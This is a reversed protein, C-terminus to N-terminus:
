VDVVVRALYGNKDKEVEFKHMTIAKPDVKLSQTKYDIKDGFFSAKLKFKGKVEKIDTKCSNFVLFKSDKLFLIEDLFSYMLEELSDKELFIEKKIKIKVKKPNAMIDFVAMAASEFLENLTKGRAEFAVDATTLGEIFEYPM